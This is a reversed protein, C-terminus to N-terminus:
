VRQEWLSAAIFSDYDQCSYNVYKVISSLLIWMTSPSRPYLPLLSSIHTVLHDPQSGAALVKGVRSSLHCIGAVVISFTMTVLPEPGEPIAWIM